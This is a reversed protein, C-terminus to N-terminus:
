NKARFLGVRFVSDFWTDKLRRASTGQATGGADLAAVVYQRFNTLERSRNRYFRRPAAICCIASQSSFSPMDSYACRKESFSM